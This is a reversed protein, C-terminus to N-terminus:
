ALKHIDKQVVIPTASADHSNLVVPILLAIVLAIMGTLLVVEILNSGTTTSRHRTM